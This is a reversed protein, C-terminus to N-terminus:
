SFAKFSREVNKEIVSKISDYETQLANHETDLKKLDSDYKKDKAQLENLKQTYEAEARAVAVEDEVEVIDPCSSYTTSTWKSTKLGTGEEGQEVYKVQELTVVGHELAFQLWESSTYLNDELIKYNDGADESKRESEGNMRHWLNTYWESRADEEDPIKSSPLNALDDLYNQYLALCNQRWVNVADWKTEWEDHRREFDALEDLYDQLFKENFEQEGAQTLGELQQYFGEWAQMLEEPTKVAANNKAFTGYFAHSNDNVSLYNIVDCYLDILYQIVEQVCEYKLIDEQKLGALLNTAEVDGSGAFGYFLSNNYLTTKDAIIIISQDSNSILLGNQNNEIAEGFGNPGWILHCLNHEMHWIGNADNGNVSSHCASNNYAQSLAAFDPLTPKSPRDTPETGPNEPINNLETILTGYSGSESGKVPIQGVQSAWSAFESETMDDNAKNLWDTIVLGGFTVTPKEETVNFYDEYNTGYIGELNSTYLPNDTLSVGYKLVFENLTNSEEFNKADTGSILLQGQTNVLGYQNKVDGYQYMVAATLESQVANGDTNYQTYMLKNADLANMYERSADQTKDALRVKSNAIQQSHLENDSIRATLSLLRAQSASLGM